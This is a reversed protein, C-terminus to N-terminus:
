GMVGWEDLLIFLGEIRCNKLAQIMVDIKDQVIDMRFVQKSENKFGSNIHISFIWKCDWRSLLYL